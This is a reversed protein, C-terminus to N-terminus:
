GAGGGPAGIVAPVSARGPAGAGASGGATACRAESIWCPLIGIGGLAAIVGAARSPAVPAIGALTAGFATWGPCPNDRGLASGTGPALPAGGIGAGGATDPVPGAVFGFALSAGDAVAGAGGFRSLLPFGSGTGGLGGTACIGGVAGPDDCSLRSEGLAGVPAIWGPGATDELGAAAGGGAGFGCILCSNLCSRAASGGGCAAAGGGRGAGEGGGLAAAGTTLGAGGGGAIALGAAGGGM